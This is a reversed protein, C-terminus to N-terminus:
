PSVKDMFVSALQVKCWVKVVDHVGHAVVESFEMVMTYAYGHVVQWPTIIGDLVTGVPAGM